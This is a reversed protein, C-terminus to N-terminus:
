IFGVKSIEASRIKSLWEKETCEGLNKFCWTSLGDPTRFVPTIPLLEFEDVWLQYGDGLPPEQFEVYDNIIGSGECSSCIGWNSALGIAELYAITSKEAFIANQILIDNSVADGTVAAFVKDMEQDPECQTLTLLQSDSSNQSRRLALFMATITKRASTVGKGKCDPCPEDCAYIDGFKTAINKVEFDLPVRKLIKIM